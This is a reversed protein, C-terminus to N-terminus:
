FLILYANYTHLPRAVGITFKLGNRFVFLFDFMWSCVVRFVMCKNSVFLSLSSLVFHMVVSANVRIFVIKSIHIAFETFM